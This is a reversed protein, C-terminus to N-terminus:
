FRFPRGPSGDPNLSFVGTTDLVFRWGRLTNAGESNKAVRGIKELLSAQEQPECVTIIVGWHKEPVAGARSFGFDHTIFCFRHLIAWRLLAPDPTGKEPVGLRLPDYGPQGAKWDLQLLSNLAASTMQEDLLFGKISLQKREGRAM